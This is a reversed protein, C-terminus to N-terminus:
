NGYNPVAVGGRSNIMSVVQDAPRSSAKGDGHVGGGLDNVPLSPPPALSPVNLLLTHLLTKLYKGVVKAGRAALM